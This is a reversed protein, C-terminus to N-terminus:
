YEFNYNAPIRANVCIWWDCIGLQMYVAHVDCSSQYCETLESLVGHGRVLSRLSQCLETLESLVRHATVVSRLSERWEMVDSLMRPRRLVVCQDLM